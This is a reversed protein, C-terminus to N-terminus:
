RAQRAADSAKRVANLAEAVLLRVHQPLDPTEWPSGHFPAPDQRQTHSGEYLAQSLAVDAEVILDFVRDTVVPQVPTSTIM